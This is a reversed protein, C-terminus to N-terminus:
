RRRFALKRSLIDLEGRRKREKERGEMEYIVRWFGRNGPHLLNLEDGGGSRAFINPPAVCCFPEPGPKQKM